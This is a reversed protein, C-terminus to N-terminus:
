SGAVFRQCDKDFNWLSRHLDTNFYGSKQDQFEFKHVIETKMATFLTFHWNQSMVQGFAEAKFCCM